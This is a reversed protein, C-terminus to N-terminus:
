EHSNEDHLALPYSNLPNNNNTHFNYPPDELLHSHSQFISLWDIDNRKWDQSFQSFYFITINKHHTHITYKNHIILIFSFDNFITYLSDILNNLTIIYNNNIKKHEMRIFVPSKISKFKTIRNLLKNQLLLIQQPQSIMHAFKINYKNKLLLSNHNHSFKIISLIHFDIFDNNIADLIFDLKSDIWDFPLSITRLNFKNLQFAISCNGLPIFM